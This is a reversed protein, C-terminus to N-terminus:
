PAADRAPAATARALLRVAPERAAPSLRTYRQNLALDAHPTLDQIAKPSAERMAFHAGFTHRLCHAGRHPLAAGGTMRACMCADSPLNVDSRRLAIM